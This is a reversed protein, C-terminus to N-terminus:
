CHSGATYRQTCHRTVNSPAHYHSFMSHRCTHTVPDGRQVTSFLITDPFYCNLALSSATYVCLPISRRWCLVRIGDAAVHISRSGRDQTFSTRFLLVVVM